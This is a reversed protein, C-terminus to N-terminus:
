TLQIWQKGDYIYPAYTEWKNESNYINITYPQWKENDNTYILVTPTQTENNYTFWASYDDGDKSGDITGSSEKNYVYFYLHVPTDPAASECTFKSFYYEVESDSDTVDDEAYLNGQWDRPHAIYNPLSQLKKEVLEKAEAPSQANHETGSCYCLCNYPYNNDSRNLLRIKLTVPNLIPEYLTIRLKTIYNGQPFWGVDAINETWDAWEVNGSYAKIELNKSTSM